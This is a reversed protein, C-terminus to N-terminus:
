GPVSHAVDEGRTESVVGELAPALVPRPVAHPILVVEVGEGWALLLVVAIKPIQDCLLAKLTSSSWYVLSSSERGSSRSQSLFFFGNELDMGGLLFALQFVPEASGSLPTFLPNPSWAVWCWM